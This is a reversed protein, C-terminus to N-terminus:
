DHLIIQMNRLLLIKQLNKQKPSNNTSTKKNNPKPNQQKKTTTTKEWSTHWYKYQPKTINGTDDLSNFILVSFKGLWIVAQYCTTFCGQIREDCSLQHKKFDLAKITTKFVNSQQFRSTLSPKWDKIRWLANWYVEFSAEAIEKQKSKSASVSITGSIIDLFLEKENDNSQQSLSSACWLVLPFM